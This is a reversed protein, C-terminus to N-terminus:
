PVWGAIAERREGDVLTASGRHLDVELALRADGREWRLCLASAADSEVCLEGDFAPHTMRLRVLELVRRVVPRRLENELEGVAYNHRNIARGEGSLELAAHDNGGALLGVDSVQPVGRTFLQIARAAVYRQAETMLREDAARSEALLARVEAGEFEFRGEM